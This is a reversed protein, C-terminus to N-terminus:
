PAAQAGGSGEAILRMAASIPIRALGSDIESWGYADLARRRRDRATETSSDEEILTTNLRGVRPMDRVEETRPPTRDTSFAAGAGGLVTAWWIAAATLLAVVAVIAGARRGPVRDEEQFLGPRRPSESM